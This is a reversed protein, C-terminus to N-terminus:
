MVSRESFPLNVMGYGNGEKAETRTEIGVAKVMKTVLPASVVPSVVIIHQEVDHISTVVIRTVLRVTILILPNIVVEYRVKTNFERQCVM